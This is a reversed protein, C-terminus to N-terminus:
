GSPMAALVRELTKEGLIEAARERNKRIDAPRRIGKDYLLRARVRGIHKAEVLRSLEKKVGYKVRFRLRKLGPLLMEKGTLSALEAFAYLLWDMRLLRRRLDGPAINHKELLDDEGREGIWEELIQAMKLSRMFDDHEGEWNRPPLELLEDGRAQLLSNVEEWEAKRVYPLPRMELTHCLAQLYGFPSTPAEELRELLWSATLPDLYLQAVRAGVKTATYSRVFGWNELDNVVSLLLSRFRKKDGYHFSFFSSEFFDFLDDQSSVFLSAIAGLIQSRLVPAAALRSFAPEPEGLLYRDRLHEAEKGSKALVVSEGFTDYGPRGARGVAQKYLSVPWERMGKSTFRKLNRIIIRHSPLNVGAVLTVTASLHKLRGDRFAEEIIHRQGSALGAHHFATGREVCKALRRCQATPHSLVNLVDDALEDLNPSIPSTVDKMKEASAMAGRRTNVFMLSQFGQDLTNKVVAVEDDSGDVEVNEHDFEIVGDHYVGEHLPVPRFDSEVLEGDLWDAIEQANGVTASLAVIQPDTSKRLKIIVTELTPGRDSGIEHIEDIVALGVSRIWSARHRFLSDFKETTMVICDHSGLRGDSSDFDGLSLAANVGFSNLEEYKEMALAKLPALYIAKKGRAVANLIAFIAILTKGSGTGSCLLLNRGELVGAEVAERQPPYLKLVDNSALFDVAEGLHPHSRALSSLEM